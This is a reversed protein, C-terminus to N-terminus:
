AAVGEYALTAIKSQAAAIKSDANAGLEDAAIITVNTIGIFKMIHRLYGSAFDIDSGVKTGGSALVIIVRKDSLLGVPGNETYKFTVGVRAVQDIWAKLVAPVSFNYIPAGIVLTDASKIESILEDSLALIEREKPGRDVPATFNASLWDNTLLAVGETLDRVIIADANLQELVADSLQRSVSGEHRASAQINLITCAM